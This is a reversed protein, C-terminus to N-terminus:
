APRLGSLLTLLVMIAPEINPKEMGVNQTPIIKIINKETWKPQNGEVPRPSTAVTNPIVLEM